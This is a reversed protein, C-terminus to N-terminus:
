KRGPRMVHYHFPPDTFYAYDGTGRIEHAPHIDMRWIQKSLRDGKLGVGVGTLRGAKNKNAKDESGAGFGLALDVKLRSPTPIKTEFYPIGPATPMYIVFRDINKGNAVMWPGWAAGSKFILTDTHRLLSEVAEDINVAKTVDISERIRSRILTTFEGGLLFNGLERM